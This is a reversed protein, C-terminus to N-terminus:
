LVVVRTALKHSLTSMASALTRPRHFPPNVFVHAEMPYSHGPNSVFDSGTTGRVGRGLPTACMGVCSFLVIEFHATLGKMPM